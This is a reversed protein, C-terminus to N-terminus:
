AAYSARARMRDYWNRLAELETPIDVKAMRLMDLFVVGTIDAFSYADGAIFERGTLHASLISLFRKVRESGREALQPIQEYPVSGPIARGKFAPHSNRLLDALPVLGEFEVRANWQFVRARELPDRGFLPPTPKLEELYAAIAINETIRTGDDLELVPVLGQPNIALYAPELHRGSRLDVNEIDVGLGKEALFILARRPSPATPYSYLKM